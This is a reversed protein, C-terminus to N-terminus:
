GTGGIEADISVSVFGTPLQQQWIGVAETYTERDFSMSLESVRRDAVDQRLEDIRELIAALTDDDVYRLDAIFRASPRSM